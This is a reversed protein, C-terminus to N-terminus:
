RGKSLAVKEIEFQRKWRPMLVKRVFLVGFSLGVGTLVNYMIMSIGMVVSTIGIWSGAVLLLTIGIDFPALLKCVMLRPSYPRGAFYSVLPIYSLLYIISGAGAFAIVIVAILSM